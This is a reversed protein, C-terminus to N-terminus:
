AAAQAKAILNATSAELDAQQNKGLIKAWLRSLPGHITMTISVTTIGNEMHLRHNFTLKAGFLHSVDVFQQNPEVTIIDAKVKPGGKPKITYHGGASFSDTLKAWEIGHDYEHWHDIDAWLAFIAAPTAKTQQSTTALTIM